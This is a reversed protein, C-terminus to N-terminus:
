PVSDDKVVGSRGVTFVVVAPETEEALADLPPLTVAVPPTATVARPTTQLVLALGVMESEVLVVSPVPVPVNVLEM